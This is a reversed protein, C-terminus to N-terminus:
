KRNGPINPSVAKGQGNDSKAKGGLYEFETINMILSRKDEESMNCHRIFTVIFTMYDNLAERLTSINAMVGAQEARRMKAIETEEIQHQFRAMKALYEMRHVDSCALLMDYTSYHGDEGIQINLQKIHERIMRIDKRFEMSAATLTWRVRGVARKGWSKDVPQKATSPM